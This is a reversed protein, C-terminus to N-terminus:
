TYEELLRNRINRRVDIDSSVLLSTVKQAATSVNCQTPTLSTVVQTVVSYDLKQKKRERGKKSVTTTVGAGESVKTCPLLSAQPGYPKIM